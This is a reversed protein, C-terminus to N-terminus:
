GPGSAGPRERQVRDLVANAADELLRGDRWDQEFLACAKERAAAEGAGLAEALSLAANRYFPHLAPILRGLEAARRTIEARVLPEDGRELVARLAVVQDLDGEAAAFVFRALAAVQQRSEAAELGPLSRVRRAQHWGTQWWLERAAVGHFRGPYCQALMAQPDGGALLRRLMAPWEGGRGSENQLFAFLWFSALSFEPRAVGDRSWDLLAAIPPPALTASRQKLADFQAPEARTRWWAVCGHELWRGVAPEVSAGHMAVALRGLLGHVLAHRVGPRRVAEAQLWVSVVGGAEINVRYDERGLAGSGPPMVRVFVPSSFAPPLGLPAELLQWCEGALAAVAHADAADVAAVEFRGPASQVLVPIAEGAGLAGALLRLVAAIALIRVRIM